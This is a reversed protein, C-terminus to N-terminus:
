VEEMGGKWGGNRSVGDAFASRRVDASPLAESACADASALMHRQSISLTQPVHTHLPLRGNQKSM